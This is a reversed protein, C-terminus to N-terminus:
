HYACQTEFFRISIEMKCHCSFPFFYDLDDPVTNYDYNKNEIILYRRVGKVNDMGLDDRAKIMAKILVEREEQIARAFDEIIYADSHM